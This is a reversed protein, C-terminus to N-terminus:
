RRWASIQEIIPRLKQGKPTIAYEGALSKKVLGNNALEELRASLTRPCVECGRQLQSFRKSGDMLCALIPLTCKNGIVELADEVARVDISKM